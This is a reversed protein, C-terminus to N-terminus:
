HSPFCAGDNHDAELLAHVVMGMRESASAISGTTAIHELLEGQRGLACDGPASWGRARAGWGPCFFGLRNRQCGNVKSIAATPFASNPKLIHVTQGCASSIIVNREPHESIVTAPRIENRLASALALDIPLFQSVLVNRCGQLLHARASANFNITAPFLPRVAPFPASPYRSPRALNAPVRRCRPEFRALHNPNQRADNKLAPVVLFSLFSLSLEITRKRTAHAHEIRGSM